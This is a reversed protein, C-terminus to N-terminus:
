TCNCDIFAAIEETLADMHLLGNFAHDAGEIIRLDHPTIAESFKFANRVHVIDDADGHIILVRSSTIGRVLSSDLHKKEEIDENRAEFKRHGRTELLIKGSAEFEEVQKRTFRKQLSYEEPVYFSGSLNVFCPIREEAPIGEQEWARRLVTHAGKSHGIVCSVRCKLQNRAFQIVEDLDKAEVEYGGYHWRGSSHGNGTFDFRLTNCHLKRALNAALFSLLMQNRWAMYGHCIIIIPKTSDIDFSSQAWTWTARDQVNDMCRILGCALQRSEDKATDKYSLYFDVIEHSDLFTPILAPAYGACQVPPKRSTIVVQNSSAQDSGDCCLASGM